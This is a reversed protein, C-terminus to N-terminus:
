TMLVSEPILILLLGVGERTWCLMKFVILTGEGFSPNVILIMLSEIYMQSSPQDDINPGYVNVLTIKQNNLIIDLIIVRGNDDFYSTKVEYDCSNDFLICVGRSNSTGHSFYINKNGWGDKWFTECDPTSHTEQLFYIYANRNHLWSFVQARKVKDKLGSVNLSYISACFQNWISHM